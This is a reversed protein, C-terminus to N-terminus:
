RKGRAAIAELVAVLMERSMAAAEDSGSCLLQLSTKVQGTPMGDAAKKLVAGESPSLTLEAGTIFTFKKEETM